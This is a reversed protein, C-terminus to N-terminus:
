WSPIVLRCVFCCNIRPCEMELLLRAVVNDLAVSNGVGPYLIFYELKKGLHSYRGHLSESSTRMFSLAEVSRKMVESVNSLILHEEAHIIPTM